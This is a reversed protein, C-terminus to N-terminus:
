LPKFVHNRVAEDKAYDEMLQFMTKEDQMDGAIMMLNLTHYRSDGDVAGEIEQEMNISVSETIISEKGDYESIYYQLIENHFLIFEMGHVAEYVCPLETVIFDGEEKKDKSSGDLIRYHLKVKHSPDCIYEVFCKDKVQYPVRLQSGFDKYFSLVIGRQLMGALHYNVFDVEEDSLKEKTSYHKLLALLCARSEETLLEKKMFEFIEEDLVRDRVVYGYAESNIYARVLQHNTDTEYFSQFIHMAGPMQVGTFVMQALLREELEHRDMMSSGATRWIGFLERVSGIYFKMLYLLVAESFKGSMYVYNCLELIFMDPEEMGVEQIQQECVQLLYKRSVDEFGFLKLGEVAKPFIKRIICYQIFEGRHGNGVYDWNLGRLMDDLLDGEFNDYYYRALSAHCRRKYIVSLDELEMVRRRINIVVDGTKNYAENKEYLYLLLRKDDKNHEYCAQACDDMNLLRRVTFPVTDAYRNGKKDILIIRAGDTFMQVVARGDVLPVYQEGTLERHLVAVGKVDPNDCLVEYQYMVSPLLRAAHKDLTDPTIFHEYLVALNKDVRKKELEALAFSRMHSLYSNYTETDSDRHKIIYAYLFEKTEIDLHNEYLFYLLVHKPLVVNEEKPLAYMYHEFLEAIRLNKEVGLRYWRFYKSQTQGSRILLSCITSLIEERLYRNYLRGLAYISQEHFRRSRGLLYNMHLAAELDLCDNKVAWLVIQFGADTLEVCLKPEENLLIVAEYYLVPSHCGAEVLELIDGLKIQRNEYRKDLYLLYWLVQWNRHGHEYQYCIKEVAEYIDATEKTYLARLYLFACYVPVDKERLWNEKALYKAIYEQAASDREDIVAVYLRIIDLVHMPFYKDMQALLREMEEVYTDHSMRNMRFNLYNNCCQMLCRQRDAVKEDVGPVGEAEVTVTLVEQRSALRIQGFNKGPRLKDSDIEFQLEYANGIFNDTWVYKNQTSLFEGETEVKYSAYGWNDRTLVIQEGMRGKCNKFTFYTQDPRIHVPLKKHTSILFEELSQSLSIGGRLGQYLTTADYDHYLFVHEFFHSKFLKGAEGPDEKALGAFHFLNKIKGVSTSCSPIDINVMFPLSCEGCDSIISIVGKEYDGPNMYGAHFVFSIENDVGEFQEQELSLFRSDVKLIGKMQRGKTNRIVFSGEYNEGAEVDFALQAESLVIEPQEYEYIEKALQRIKEKMAVDEDACEYQEHLNAGGVTCAQGAFLSQGNAPEFM